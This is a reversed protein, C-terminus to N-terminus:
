ESFDADAETIHTGSEDTVAPLQSPDAPFLGMRAGRDLGQELAAMTSGLDENEDKEWARLAHTWLATVRQVRLFGQLGATEIGAAGAIWRMSDMTAAGLIGLTLPEYPLDRLVSLVGTRYQQFVDFRRMLLDFLAERPTELSGDDILAARDALRGLLLLISTKFPYRIRVEGIDLGAHRAIEPMSLNRWGRTGALSMASELLTTDFQDTDEM